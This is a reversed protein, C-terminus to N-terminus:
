IRNIYNTKKVNNNKGDKRQNRPPTPSNEIDRNKQQNRNYTHKRDGDMYKDTQNSNYNERQYSDYDFDYGYDQNKVSSYKQIKDYGQSTQRVKNEYGNGNYNDRSKNLKTTRKELTVRQRQHEEYYDHFEREDREPSSYETVKRVTIPTETVLIAHQNETSRMVVRRDDEPVRSHRSTISNVFQNERILGSHQHINYNEIESRREKIPSM